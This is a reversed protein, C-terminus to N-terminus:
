KTLGKNISDEIGTKIKNLDITDSATSSVFKINDTTYTVIPYNPYWTPYYTVGFLEDLKLKLERAETKSLTIKRGTSLEIQISNIKAM